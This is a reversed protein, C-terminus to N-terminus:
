VHARGIQHGIESACRARENLLELMQADIADIRERVTGIGTDGRQDDAAM